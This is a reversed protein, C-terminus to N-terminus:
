AESARKLLDGVAAADKADEDNDRTGTQTLGAKVLAAFALAPKQICAAAAVMAPVTREEGHLTIMSCIGAEMTEDPDMAADRQIYQVHSVMGIQHECCIRHVEDLLPKIQAHFVESEDYTEHQM